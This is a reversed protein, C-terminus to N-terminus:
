NFLELKLKFLAVTEKCYVTRLKLTFIAVAIAITKNLNRIEAYICLYMYLIALTKNTSEQRDKKKLNIKGLKKYM